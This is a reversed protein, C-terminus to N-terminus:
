SVQVVYGKRKDVENLLPSSKVYRRLNECFIERMNKYGEASKGGLHPTIVANPMDWLPSEEPLPEEEYVDLGAGAITGSQLADVLDPENVIPGRAVNV